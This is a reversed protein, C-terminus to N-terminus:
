ENNEGGSSDIDISLPASTFGLEDYDVDGTTTTPLSEGSEERVVHYAVDLNRSRMEVDLSSQRPERHQVGLDALWDNWDMVIDWAAKTAKWDDVDLLEEIISEFLAQTTLKADGGLHADISERLRDMDRSITSRHVGFREAQRTQTIAYPSGVDRIRRLLAARREHHTYEEIPKSEPPELAAYNPLDETM